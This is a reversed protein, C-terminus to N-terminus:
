RALIRALTLLEPTVKQCPQIAASLPIADLAHGRWGMLVGSGGAVLTEVAAAGLHSALLRDRM